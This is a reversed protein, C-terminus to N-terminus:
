QKQYKNDSPLEQKYQANTLQRELNVVIISEAMERIM